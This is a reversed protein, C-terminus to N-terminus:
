HAPAVPRVSHEDVHVKNLRADFGVSYGKFTGDGQREFFYCGHDLYFKDHSAHWFLRLFRGDYDGEVDWKLKPDEDMTVNGYLRGRKQKKIEIIEKYEKPKGEVLNIWKSELRTGELKPFPNRAISRQFWDSRGIIGGMVAASVAGAAGILAVVIDKEV